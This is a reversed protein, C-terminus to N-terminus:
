LVHIRISLTQHVPITKETRGRDIQDICISGPYAILASDTADPLMCLPYTHLSHMTFIYEAWTLTGM